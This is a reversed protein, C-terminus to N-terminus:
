RDEARIGMGSRDPYPPRAPPSYPRREIEELMLDIARDLQPDGGDVMLAPDDIVEIDPDVGHGEIGWTGDTEYYAFTPVSTYGGDILGPNGSIGVLGGWTRTGILKGLGARRFYAPFADGGSGALGNILMCKPGHHADAPWTWDNGDRRAWYNTVPRDLLEIFRTPIQGGGNWREDVILAAKRTQGVFQRFLENQGNVGTDPVHVYGVRGGTREEVRRRNAEVWARYRIGSEDGLLKVVVRRATDDVVPRESVTLTVVRNALGQLAAWPERDTTMPVGNVELVHDGVKVDLGPQSLPGRGDDDWPGAEVIRAIRYAGEDVELDAGLMGVPVRPADEGDGGWYYAHGVNLESIMERIVQSVDERSVCDEIMPAYQERVAAWDVGHMHPDYFFDRHIRWAELFMQRWEARPDVVTQLGSLDLAKFGQNPKPDLVAYEGRRAAILKAGDASLEFAGAGDLVTQEKPSDASTDIMAIAGSGRAGRGRGAGRSYLLAGSKAVALHSFTGRPVPLRVGRREFDELDIVLRKKEEPKKEEAPEEESSEAEAEGKPDAGEAPAADPEEPDDDDGEDDPAAGGKRSRRGKGNRGGKRPGDADGAKEDDKKADGWTEEDSEPALPSKVDKRLPVAMIVETESYIFTTGVDEYKPGSFERGSAYYLYEGKRDFAPWTDEFMGHTVQHLAGAEVDYLWIASIQSEQPRAWAIWSSDHSWSVRMRDAWPHTDIRRTEGGELTHLHLAGSKDTFAIRKSDPSWAPSYLFTAGGQTLQRPEGRGDSQATYLEYEGGADSFYAIWQGDPSWAPDREAVGSTRTLNRPSGESAPVTWVDGRAAFVARKGTSSIGWSQVQGAANMRRPRIDPRAGPVQVEIRRTEGNTLDFLHLGTGQQFVIAGPGISPSRVDMDAYHTVQRREGTPVDYTWLNLRHSPGDDCLYYITSGHWMPQTDTGEWDTIRKSEHRTLHFLWIDTAQGGRYRKWTRNDRSHPTYALWEGDPSVAGNAGYPVPLRQPLGGAADTAYLKVQRSLGERANTFFMLRGDPTWDTLVESGPHYTVRHPTGGEVPLTYLDTNGDYNGMFAITRGDPSFRPNAEQGPPSALLVATGGQRPVLWLDNGYSFAVHTESVDPHRLMGAHPQDGALAPAALLAALVAAAPRTCLRRM